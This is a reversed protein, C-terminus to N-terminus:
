SFEQGDHNEEPTDRKRAHRRRLREAAQQGTPDEKTQKLRPNTLAVDSTDPYKRSQRHCAGAKMAM